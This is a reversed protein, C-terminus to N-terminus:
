NFGPGVALCNPSLGPTGVVGNQRAIRMGGAFMLNSNNGYGQNNNGLRNGFGRNKPLSKRRIVHVNKLFLRQNTKVARILARRTTLIGEEKDEPTDITVKCTSLQFLLYQARPSNHWKRLLQLRSPEKFDVPFTRPDNLNSSCLIIRGSPRIERVTVKNYGIKNYGVPKRSKSRPPHNTKIEPTKHGM